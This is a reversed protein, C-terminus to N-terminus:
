EDREPPVDADITSAVIAPDGEEWVNLIDVGFFRGPRVRVGRPRCARRQGARATCRCPTVRRSPELFRWARRSLVVCYGDEGHYVGPAVDTEAVVGSGPVSQGAFARREDLIENFARARGGAGDRRLGRTRRM